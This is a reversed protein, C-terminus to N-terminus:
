ECPISGLTPRKSPTTRDRQRAREKVKLIIDIADLKEQVAADPSEVIQMMARVLRNTITDKPNPMNHEDGTKIKDM